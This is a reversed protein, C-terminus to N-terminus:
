FKVFVKFFWGGVFFEFFFRSGVVVLVVWVEVGRVVDISFDGRLIWRFFVCLGFGLWLGCFGSRIFFVSSGLFFM